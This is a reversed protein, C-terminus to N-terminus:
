TGYRDNEFDYIIKTGNFKKFFKFLDVSNLEEDLNCNYVAGKTSIELRSAKQLFNIAVISDETLTIKGDKEPNLPQLLLDRDIIMLRYPKTEFFGTRLRIDISM